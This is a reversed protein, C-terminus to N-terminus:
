ESGQQSRGARVIPSARDKEMQAHQEQREQEAKRAAVARRRQVIPRVYNRLDNKWRGKSDRASLSLANRAKNATQKHVKENDDFDYVANGDADNEFPLHGYDAKIVPANQFHRNWEGDDKQTTGVWYSGDANTYDDSMTTNIHSHLYERFGDMELAQEPHDKLFEFDHEALNPQLEQLYDTYAQLITIDMQTRKRKPNKALNPGNPALEKKVFRYRAFAKDAFQKAGAVSWGFEKAINSFIADLERQDKTELDEEEEEDAAVDAPDASVKTSAIYEVLWQQVKTMRPKPPTSDVVAQVFERIIADDVVSEHQSTGSRTGPKTGTTGTTGKSTSGEADMNNQKDKENRKDPDSKKDKGDLAGKLVDFIKPADDDSMGQTMRKFAVDLEVNDQPKYDANMPDTDAASPDVVDNVKVMKPDPIYSSSDLAEVILERLARETVVVKKM